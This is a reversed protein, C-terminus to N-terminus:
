AASTPLAAALYLVAQTRAVAGVAADPVLLEPHHLPRPPSARPATCGSSPWRSRPSSASSPSTTLAAPAGSSPSGLRGSRDARARRRRARPRERAAARGATIEIATCGHAAAVGSASREVLERLDAPGRRQPRTASRGRPGRPIVNDASGGEITGITLVAPGAPRGAPSRRTSRSWSRRSRSSRTAASTRTPATRLAVRSPSRSRTAPPTSSARTWGSRAGPFSPIFTRPSCRRPHTAALEQPALQEAGSPYAEESPQLAGAACRLEDALANAARALATLAAMHVDHGCAHM